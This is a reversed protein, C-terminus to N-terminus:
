TSSSLAKGAEEEDEVHGCAPCVGDKPAAPLFESRIDAVFADWLRQPQEEFFAIVDEYADGFFARDYDDSAKRIQENLGNITEESRNIEGEWLEIAKQYADLQEPPADHGPRAPRPSNTQSMATSLLSQGVYLRMHADTMAKGRKRTLPEVTITESVEYPEPINSDISLKLLRESLSGPM